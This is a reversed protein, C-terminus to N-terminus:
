LTCVTTTGEGILLILYFPDLPWPITDTSTTIAINSRLLNAMIVTSGLIVQVYYEGQKVTNWRLANAIYLNKKDVEEPPVWQLCVFVFARYFGSVAHTVEMYQICSFNEVEGVGIACIYLFLLVNAAWFLQKKQWDVNLM